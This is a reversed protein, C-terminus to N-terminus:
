NFLTNAPPQLRFVNVPKYPDFLTTRKLLLLENVAFTAHFTKQGYDMLAKLYVSEPLRRAITVHPNTILTARPCSCSDIYNSVAKLEKALQKFPQQNQVRLYITHPPFGSYNNLMVSFAQQQLCIRQMYRIITEEMAEKAVFNAITIHPKTKIAIKQNYEDSFYEKEKVIKNNVKEDPHAVLLYEYFGFPAWQINSPKTVLGAEM